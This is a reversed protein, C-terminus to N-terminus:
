LRSVSEIVKKMITYVNKHNDLYNDAQLMEDRLVMPLLDAVFRM